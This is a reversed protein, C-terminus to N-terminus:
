GNNGCQSQSCARGSCQSVIIMMEIESLEAVTCQQMVGTLQETDTTRQGTRRGLADISYGSFGIRQGHQGRCAAQACAHDRSIGAETGVDVHHCQPRIGFVGGIDNGTVFLTCVFRAYLADVDLGSRHFRDQGAGSGAIRSMDCWPARNDDGLFVATAAAHKLDQIRQVRGIDGDVIGVVGRGIRCM